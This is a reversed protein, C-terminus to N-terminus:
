MGSSDSDMDPIYGVIPLKGLVEMEHPSGKIAETIDKGATFGRHSGTPWTKSVDYIVGNVAIFASRGDRGNYVALEDLTLRYPAIAGVVPLKDLVLLDHPSGKIAETIDTGAPFGQHTGRPWTESVDYVIGNVAVYAPRGERGDFPALEDLTWLSAAFYGVVNLRDFVRAGHASEAMPETIDTGAHFGQHSGTPWTRSVDYVRGQYAVYGPNGERGNFLSLTDVSFVRPLENALLAVSIMLTVMLTLVITRKV